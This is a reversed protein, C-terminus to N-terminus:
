ICNQNITKTFSTLSSLFKKQSLIYIYYKTHMYIDADIKSHDSQTNIVFNTQTNVRLIGVCLCCSLICLIYLSANNVSLHFIAM